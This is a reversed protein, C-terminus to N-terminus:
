PSTALALYISRHCEDIIIVDFYEPPIAKNYVVPAPEDPIASAATDFLSHEEQEENFEEDGKLMSYLRQITSIVVKSSAGITPSELRQVNYLEGFRRNDDPTIYGQFEKEAQEGM